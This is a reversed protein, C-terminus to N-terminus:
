FPTDNNEERRLQQQIEKPVSPNGPKLMIGHDTPVAAAEPWADVVRELSGKLKRKFDVRGRATNPYGAGFQAQLQNWTVVTFGQHYSLRYTLWCYLDIAMPSRKIARLIAIDLPVASGILDQYFVKSLTVSSNMLSLQDENKPDWWLTSSDAILSNDIKQFSRPMDEMDSSGITEVSIFTSFLATLQKRLNAINGTKGGSRGDVGIERMFEALSAGLPIIRAEDIDLSKRRVAERTLWCMILRPYVGYPLGKSSYMTVQVNGNKLVIEKGARASHPFTAQLLTRSTFTYPDVLGSEIQALREALADSASGQSSEFSNNNNM